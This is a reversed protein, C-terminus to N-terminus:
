IRYLMRGCSQCTSIGVAQSRASTSGTPLKMFCGLCTGERVPVLARGYRRFARDYLDLYRPLISAAVDARIRQLQELGSVHLRAEKWLARIGDDRADRLLLDLDQLHLLKEGLTLTSLPGM